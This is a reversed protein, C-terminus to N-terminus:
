AGPPNAAAGPRDEGPMTKKDTAYAKAADTETATAQHIEEIEHARERAVESFTAQVSEPIYGSYGQLNEVKAAVQGALESDPADLASKFAGSMNKSGMGNTQTLEYNSAGRTGQVTAATIHAAVGGAEGGFAAELNGGNNALTQIDEWGKTFSAHKLDSRGSKGAASRAAGWVGAQRSTDTGTAAVIAQQFEGVDRYTYGDAAGAVVAAEKAAKGYGLGTAEWAQAGRVADQAAKKETVGGEEYEGLRKARDVYHRTLNAVASQYDNGYTAANLADGDHDVGATALAKQIDPSMAAAQQGARNVGMGIRRSTSLGGIIPAKSLRQDLKNRLRDPNRANRENWNRQRRDWYNANGKNMQRAFEQQRQEKKSGYWGSQKLKASGSTIAEHAKSLTGGAMRFAFPIAFLPLFQLLFAVVVAIISAAGSSIATDISAGSIKNANLITISLIDAVAFVVIIIPYVMLAELLLDWWKKFYSQTNPLCYLAFAVPSILM